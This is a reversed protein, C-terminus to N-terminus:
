HVKLLKRLIISSAVSAIIYVWIWGDIFGLFNLNLGKYANGLLGFILLLPIITVINPKLSHMMYKMNKEMAEKNIELMKSQNDRHLKMEAQLRKTDEKLSKMLNQDTLYKYAITIVLTIFFSIGILILNQMSTSAARVSTFILTSNTISEFVM